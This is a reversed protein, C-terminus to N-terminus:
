DFTMTFLLLYINVLSLSLKISMKWVETYDGRLADCVAKEVDCKSEFVSSETEKATNEQEECEMREETDKSSKRDTASDSCMEDSCKKSGNEAACRQFSLSHQALAARLVSKLTPPLEDFHDELVGCRWWSFVVNWWM